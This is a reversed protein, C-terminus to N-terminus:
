KKGSSTRTVSIFTNSLVYVIMKEDPICYAINGFFHVYVGTGHDIRAFHAKPLSIGRIKWVRGLAGCRPKKVFNCQCSKVFLYLLVIYYKAVHSNEIILRRLVAFVPPNDTHAYEVDLLIELESQLLGCDIGAGDATNVLTLIHGQV